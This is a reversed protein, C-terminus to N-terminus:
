SASYVSDLMWIAFPYASRQWIDHRVDAEVPTTLRSSFSFGTVEIMASAEVLFCCEGARAHFIQVGRCAKSGFWRMAQSPTSTRFVFLLFLCSLAHARDGFCM